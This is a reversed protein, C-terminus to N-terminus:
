RRWPARRPRAHGVDGALRPRRSRSATLARAELHLRVVCSTSWSRRRRRRARGAGPPRCLRLLASPRRDGDPVERRASPRRGRGVVVGVVVSRCPRGRRSATLTATRAPPREESCSTESADAAETRSPGPAAPWSTTSTAARARRASASRRRPPRAAARRRAARRRRRTGPAARATRRPRCRAPAARAARRGRRRRRAHEGRASHMSLTTKLSSIARAPSGCTSSRRRARLRRARRGLAATAASPSGTNTLGARSPEDTPMERTSAASSSRRRARSRRERVVRQTITSASQARCPPRTSPARARRRREPRSGPSIAARRRSAPVVVLRLVRGAPHLQTTGARM